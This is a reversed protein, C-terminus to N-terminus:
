APIQMGGSSPQITHVIEEECALCVRRVPDVDLIHQNMPRKCSLCIGFTGDDVRAVALRLEVLVPDSKFALIADLQHPTITGGLFSEKPFVVAYNQDLYDCLRSLILRRM